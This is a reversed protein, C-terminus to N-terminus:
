YFEYKECERAATFNGKANMSKAKIGLMCAEPHRYLIQWDWLDKKEQNLM